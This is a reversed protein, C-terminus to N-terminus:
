KGFIGNPTKTSTLTFFYFTFLLIGGLKRQVPNKDRTDLFSSALFMIKKKNGDVNM